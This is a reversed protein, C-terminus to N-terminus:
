DYRFREAIIRRAPVNRKLLAGEVTELMAPPGCLVYLWDWGAGYEFVADVAAADVMGTLGNWAAPPESLVHIVRFWPQEALHDLEERYIIQEASRNGYVLVVPGPAGTAEMQRLMSLMPAIGVGGAFMVVGPAEPDLLLNGFPGEMHARTGPRINGLSGTFDGAEKIVFEVREGTAPASAISFPNEALSFPSHGVNLWVFQGAQFHIAHQGDPEITLEWTREAVPRVSRVRYPRGLQRLPKVVYVTLLTLVALAFLVVWLGALVPDGSYRGADLAHHLTLGAVLLAGVGHGLRWAEYRYPIHDRFIATLVLVLFLVWALVGTAISAETLGLSHLGASDWPLPHLRLPTAYLFPHLLVFAAATRALLQHFRMTVDMGIRASITRFRGSLVFEMLMIAFATLGLGGAIEDMATRPPHGQAAAILLPAAAIALYGIVLVVPHL